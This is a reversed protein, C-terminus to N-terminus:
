ANEPRGLIRNNDAVSLALEHELIQCITLLPDRLDELTTAAEAKAKAARVDNLQKQELYM